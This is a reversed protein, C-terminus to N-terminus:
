RVVIIICGMPRSNKSLQNLSFTNVGNLIFNEYKDGKLKFQCSTEKILMDNYVRAGNLCGFYVDFYEHIEHQQVLRYRRRWKLIGMDKLINKYRRATTPSKRNVTRAIAANSMTLFGLHTKRKYENLKDKEKKEKPTLNQTTNLTQKRVEVKLKRKQYKLSAIVPVSNVVVKTESINKSVKITLTKFILKKAKGGYLKKYQPFILRLKEKSLMIFHGDRFEVVGKKILINLHFKMTNLSVGLKKALSRKSCNYIIPKKHLARLQCYYSLSLLLGEDHFESYM